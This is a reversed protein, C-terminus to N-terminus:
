MPPDNQAVRNFVVPDNQAKAVEKSKKKKEM